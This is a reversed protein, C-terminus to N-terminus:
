RCRSLSSTAQTSAPSIVKLIPSSTVTPPGPVQANKGRLTGCSPLVGAAFGTADQKQVGRGGGAAVDLLEQFAGAWDVGIFAVFEALAVAPFDDTWVRKSPPPKARSREVLRAPGNLQPRDVSGSDSWSDLWTHLRDREGQWEYVFGQPTLRGKYTGEGRADQYRGTGGTIQWTGEGTVDPAGGRKPTTTVTGHYTSFWTDGSPCIQTRHGRQYGTGAVIEAYTVFEVHMTQCQPDTSTNPETRRALTMTHKPDDPAVIRNESLLPGVTGGGSVKVTDAWVDTTILCLALGSGCLAAFGIRQEM